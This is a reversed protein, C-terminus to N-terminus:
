DDADPPESRLQRATEPRGRHHDIWVQDPDVRRHPHALVVRLRTVDRWEVDPYRARGDDSLARAAEGIIELLREVALRVAMDADFAPPSKRDRTCALESLLVWLHRHASHVDM